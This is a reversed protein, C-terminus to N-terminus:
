LGHSKLSPKIDLRWPGVGTFVISRQGSGRHTLVVGLPWDSRTWDKSLGESLDYRAREFRALFWFEEVAGDRENFVVLHTALGLALLGVCRLGWRKWAAMKPISASAIWVCAVIVLTIVRNAVSVCYIFTIVDSGRAIITRITSAWTVTCACVLAVLLLAVRLIRPVLGADVAPWDLQRSDSLQAAPM